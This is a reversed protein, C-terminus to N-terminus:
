SIGSLNRFDLPGTQGATWNKESKLFETIIVEEECILQSWKLVIKVVELHIM